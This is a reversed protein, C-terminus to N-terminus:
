GGKVYSELKKRCKLRVNPMILDVGQIVVEDNIVRVKHAIEPAGIKLPVKHNPKLGTKQYSRLIDAFGARQALAKLLHASSISVGLMRALPKTAVPWYLSTKRAIQNSGGKNPETARKRKKQRNVLHAIKAGALFAKINRIDKTDFEAATKAKFNHIRRIAEFGRIFYIETKNNYGIWNKDLLIKLNNRVTRGSKLGLVSAIGRYDIDGRKIKGSCVSKLHIYVQMPRFFKTRIVHECLELPIALSMNSAGKVLHLLLRIWRM